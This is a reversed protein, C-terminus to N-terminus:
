IKWLIDLSTGIEQTYYSPGVMGLTINGRSNALHKSFHFTGNKSIDLM